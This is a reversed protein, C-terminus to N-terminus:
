VKIKWGKGTKSDLLRQCDFTTKVFFTKVVFGIGEEVNKRGISVFSYFPNIDIVAIDFGREFM